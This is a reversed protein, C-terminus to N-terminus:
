FFHSVSGVELFQTACARDHTAWFVTTITTEQKYWFQGLQGFKTQLTQVPDREGKCWLSELWISKTLLLVFKFNWKDITAIMPLPTLRRLNPFTNPARLWKIYIFKFFNLFLSLFLFFVDINIYYRFSSAYCKNNSHEIQTVVTYGNLGNWDIRDLKTWKLKSRDM